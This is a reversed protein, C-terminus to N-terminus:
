RSRIAVMATYQCCRVALPYTRGTATELARLRAGPGQYFLWASDPSWATRAYLRATSSPVRTPKSGRALRLVFLRTRGKRTPAIAAAAALMRDDPAIATEVGFGDPVWGATGPPAPFALRAQTAVDIVNLTACAEYGVPTRAFGSTAEEIRCGSGYAVLRADSAFGAGAMPGGLHALTRTPHGPRWLELEGSRAVLLLGAASGSIVGATRPPLALKPGRRGGSVSVSQVSLPRGSSHNAHVLWIHDPTASPVFFTARGLVRRHGTLNARIASVGRDGNYVLWRGVSLLPVPFDGPAIGPIRKVAHRGTSLDDINVTTGPGGGPLDGLEPPGAPWLLLTTKGGIAGAGALAAPPPTGGALAAVALCIAPLVAARAAEASAAVRGGLQVSRRM